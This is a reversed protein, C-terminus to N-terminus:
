DMGLMWVNIGYDSAEYFKFSRTDFLWAPHRMIKSTNNLINNFEDWETVIIADANHSADIITEAFRLSGDLNNSFDYKEAGLESKIQNVNSQIM